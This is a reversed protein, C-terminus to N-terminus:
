MWCEKPLYGSKSNFRQQLALRRTISFEEHNGTLNIEVNGSGDGDPHTADQGVIKTNIMVDSPAIIDGMNYDKKKCVSIVLLLTLAGLCYKIYQTM